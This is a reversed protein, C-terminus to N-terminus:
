AGKRSPFLNDYFDETSDYNSPSKGPYRIRGDLRRLQVTLEASRARLGPLKEAREGPKLMVMSDHVRDLERAIDDRRRGTTKCVIRTMRDM